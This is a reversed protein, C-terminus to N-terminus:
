RGVVVAAREPEVRSARSSPKASGVGSGSATPCGPVRRCERSPASAWATRGSVPRDGEGTAGVQARRATVRPRVISRHDDDDAGREVHGAVVVSGDAASPRGTRIARAAAPDPPATWSTPLTPSSGAPSAVRSARARSPIPWAAVRRSGDRAVGAIGGPASRGRARCRRPPPGRRPRHTREPGVEYVARPGTRSPRARRRRDRARGASGRRREPRPRRRAARGPRWTSPRAPRPRRRHSRSRGSRDAAPRGPGPGIGVRRSPRGDGGVITMSAGSASGSPIKARVTPAKAAARSAPTSGAAARSVAAAAAPQCCASPQDPRSRRPRGARHARARRQPRQEGASAGRRTPPPREAVAPAPRPARGRRRGRPRALPGLGGARPGGADPRPHEAMLENPTTTVITFTRVTLEAIPIAGARGSGPWRSRSGTPGPRGPLPGAPRGRPAVRLVRRGARHLSPPPLQGPVDREHRRDRGSRQVPALRDAPRRGLLPHPGLSLRQRARRDGREM